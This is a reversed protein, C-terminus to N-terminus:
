AGGPRRAERSRRRAQRRAEHEARAAAAEEPTEKRRAKSAKRRARARKDADNVRASMARKTSAKVPKEAAKGRPRPDPLELLVALATFTMGLGGGAILTRDSADFVWFRPRPGTTGHVRLVFGLKKAWARARAIDRAAPNDLADIHAVADRVTKLEAEAEAEEALAEALHKACLTLGPDGSPKRRCRVGPRTNVPCGHGPLPIGMDVEHPMLGNVVLAQGLGIESAGKTLIMRARYVEDHEGPRQRDREDLEALLAQLKPTMGVMVEGFKRDRRDELEDDNM